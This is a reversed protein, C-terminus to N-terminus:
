YYLFECRGRLHRYLSKVTSIASSFSISEASLTTHCISIWCRKTTHADAIGVSIGTHAKSTALRAMALARRPYPLLPYVVKISSLLVFDM